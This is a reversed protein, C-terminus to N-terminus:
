KTVKGHKTVCKGCILVGNEGCPNPENVPPESAWDLVAYVMVCGIALCLAIDKM